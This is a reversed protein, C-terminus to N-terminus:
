ILQIIYGRQEMEMVSIEDSSRTVGDRCGADTSEDVPVAMLNLFIM